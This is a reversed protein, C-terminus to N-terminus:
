IKLPKATPNQELQLNQSKIKLKILLISQLLNKRHIPDIILIVTLIIWIQLNKTQKKNALLLTILIRNYSNLNTLFHKSLWVVKRQIILM